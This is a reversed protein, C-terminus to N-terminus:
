GSSRPAPSSRSGGLASSRENSPSLVVWVGYQGIAWNRLALELCEERVKCAACVAIVDAAERRAADAPANVPYWNDPSLGSYSCAAQEIVLLWRIRDTM